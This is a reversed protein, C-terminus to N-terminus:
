FDPNKKQEKSCIIMDPFDFFHPRGCWSGYQISVMKLGAKQLKELIWEEDYAIQKKDAELSRLRYFGKNFPFHMQTPKKIMLDESLCNVIFFTMLSIAGPKMVRGIENIHNEVEAPKLYTLVSSLFVFDFQANEYPFVLHTADAITSTGSTRNESGTYQFHFNPHKESINKKCWNIDGKADDFGYYEGKKNLFHTLPLAMRGTGCGAELMSHDPQLDGLEQFYTLYKEGENLYEDYSVLIKRRPPVGEPRRGTISDFADVPLYFIRRALLRVFDPLTFNLFRKM